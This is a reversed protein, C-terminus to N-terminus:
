YNQTRKHGFTLMHIKSAVQPGDNRMFNRECREYNLHVFVFLRVRRQCWSLHKETTLNKEVAALTFQAITDCDDLKIIMGIGNRNDHLDKWEHWKDMSYCKLWLQAPIFRLNLWWFLKIFRMEALSSSHQNLKISCCSLQCMNNTDTFIFLNENAIVTQIVTKQCKKRWKEFIMAM